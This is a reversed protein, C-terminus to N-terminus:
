QEVEPADPLPQWHTVDEAHYGIYSGDVDSLDGEDSVSAINMYHGVALPIYVIAEGVSLPEDEVSIWNSM